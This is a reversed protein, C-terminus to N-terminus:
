WLEVSSSIYNYNNRPAPLDWCYFTFTAHKCLFSSLQKKSSAEHKHEQVGVGLLFICGSFQKTFFCIRCITRCVRSYIKFTLIKLLFTRGWFQKAYFCIKCVTRCVRSYIKSGPFLLSWFYRCFDARDHSSIHSAVINGKFLRACDMFLLKENPHYRGNESGPCVVDRGKSYEALGLPQLWRWCVWTHKAIWLELYRSTYSICLHVTYLLTRYVWTHKLMWLELYVFVHCTCERNVWIMVSHKCLDIYDTMVDVNEHCLVWTSSAHGITGKLSKCNRGFNQLQLM